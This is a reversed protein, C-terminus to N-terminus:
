NQFINFCKGLNIHILCLLDCAFFSDLGHWGKDEIFVSFSKFIKSTSILVSDSAGNCLVCLNALIFIDMRLM